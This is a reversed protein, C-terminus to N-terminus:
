SISEVLCDSKREEVSQIRKIWKGSKLRYLCWFAKIIQDIKLCMYVTFGSCHWYLGALIGLPISVCWMFLIDAVMLFRTDGGGRLVGKMLVSNVCQFIVIIAVAKMLEAALQRTEESVNYISIVADGLLLILVCGIVGVIAALAAMTVAQRQAKERDGEGLTNGTIICGAQCIGQIVVTSLQQFVTTISNAAVFVSGIRGMVMAVATNGVGLLSDSILVPVSNKLYEPWIDMCKMRLDRLRLGIHNDKFFVYGMIFVFEFLRAILTGLAAGRIELRPAGLNGYIFVWNAFINIFFAGISSFLPVNARGVSRLVLSTTVSFGTLFYTPVCIQFYMVGAQVVEAEPTYLRMIPGPILMTLASFTLVFILVVRYMMLISKKLSDMARMGWYRSTLVTAGMGLGMCSFQFFTIFQNALTAGSMQIEGLSGLMMNDALSVGATVAQQLVIPIGTAALATYFKKDRVFIM